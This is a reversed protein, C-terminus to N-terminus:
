KRVLLVVNEVHHTQPFMDVPQVKVIEYRDKMLALDRAQTAPNCSVYVIKDPFANLIVHVVDEHMGARPPDTIIVNPHGHKEFLQANLIDKMDGSYFTTNKIGNIESNLKADEIAEPVYEIGIVNKAKKAVFNAITGTGTYLDYVTEDGTLGAFDFASQYLEVAQKSNTQFFSKASIRFQLDNMKETIFDKGSFNHVPLDGYSDNKKDNIIYLLSTIEPFAHRIQKLMEERVEVDEYHFIMVLMIEGTTTLRIVMNRLFGEQKRIHFFSLKNKLAYDRVWNRIKDNISDMLHCEEIELIKDFRGPAHFGLAPNIEGEKLKDFHQASLWVEQSFTFELKNRYGKEQQSGKIAFWEKWELHGIREFADKVQKEKYFLQKEYKMNQWKCGGCIGFHTCFPEQRHISKEVLNEIVGEYFRRKDGVIKIDVVDGPVGYKVFVVKEGVKGVANGDSSADVLQVTPIIENNRKKRGM